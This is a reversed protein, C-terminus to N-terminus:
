RGITLIVSNSEEGNVTITLPYDGPPLDPVRFNAQCLAPYGPALGLYFVEVPAGNIKITSPYKARGLPEAAPSGEGTAVTVEPVGIGSFYLLEIDGPAAPAGTANVAGNPNVAVARTGNYV